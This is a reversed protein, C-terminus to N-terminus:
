RGFVGHRGLAAALAAAAAAPSMRQAVHEMGNRSMSSWLADDDLLRVVAAATEEAGDAILAHVGDVLGMGEAGVMSTAVPLGRRLADGVKGKVGAGFRLPAVMVRSEDHVATLDDVWGLVDVAGGHLELLETPMRSGVLRLKTGPCAALVLPLVDHVLFTACDVNPQHEFNGVLLLGSRGAPGPAPALREHVNSVVVIDADPASAQLLGREEESVVFTLDADRTAALELERMTAALRATARATGADVTLAAERELRVFHLDVTDYVVTADTAFQRILPLFRVANAPRSLVVLSLFPGLSRLHSTLDTPGYLVEVGRQQLRDLWPQRVQEDVPVVTIVCGLEALIELLHWMRQSGSDEDPTPVRDDVVLVRPGTRRDRARVVNAPDDTQQEALRHAWRELFVQHNRVQHVKGGVAIDTGHSAGEHHFVTARPQYVVRWGRERARFCLDTDEYYAPEFAPDFGELAEWVSRRVLLAAGSCYDVDRRYSFEGGDPGAGRGYNWGHGNSWVIGGAEQLRRDPYVLRAGVVGITPDADATDVLEDLWGVTVETDNNLLVVHDGRAEAAGRNASRLFGVNVESRLLRLHRVHALVDATEDPSADDVVIVEYALRPPRAAISELCRLTLELQGYACIVVSAAPAASPVLMIDEARAVSDVHPGAAAITSM